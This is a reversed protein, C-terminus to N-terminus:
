FTKAEGHITINFVDLKDFLQAPFCLVNIQVSDIVVQDVCWDKRRTLCRVEVTIDAVLQFIDGSLGFFDEFCRTDRVM